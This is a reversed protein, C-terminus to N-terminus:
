SGRRRGQKPNLYGSSVSWLIGLILAFMLQGQQLTLFYHDFFGLILIESFLVLALTSRRTVRRFTKFLFWIFFGLGIIGTESLVLLFINHVPQLYFVNGDSGVFFPLSPLFNGLGVGLIPKKSFMDLAAKSLAIRSEITADVLSLSSFRSYLPSFYILAITAILFFIIKTKESRWFSKVLWIFFVVAWALVAARSLTLFLAATGIFLLPYRVTKRFYFLILTMSIVLYAALVNPHSFTAYPRLILSGNLSANAIGPTQSNFAREGLFYLLGGLSGQNFYQAITLTSEFVLGLSFPIAIMKLSKVNKATYLGFFSFEVLKLLGYIGPLPSKSLFIGVLLLLAFVAVSVPLKFKLAKPKKLSSLFWFTFLLIILVDTFYLTPSLYDARLGLVFSFDPWFHRGLQTPLFLLILFYLANAPSLSWFEKRARELLSLHSM